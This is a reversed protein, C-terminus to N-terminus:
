QSMQGGYVTVSITQLYSISSHTNHLGFEAWLVIRRTGDNGDQVIKSRLLFSIVLQLLAHIEASTAPEM